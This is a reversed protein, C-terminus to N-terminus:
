TTVGSCEPCPVDIWSGDPNSGGSDVSGHGGCQWCSEWRMGATYIAVVNDMQDWVAIVEKEDCDAREKARQNAERLTNFFRLKDEPQPDHLRGVVYCHTHVPTSLDTMETM